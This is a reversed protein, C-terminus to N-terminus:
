YSGRTSYNKRTPQNIDCNLTNNIDYKKLKIVIM